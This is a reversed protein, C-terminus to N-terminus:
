GAHCAACDDLAFAKKGNHCAGCYRGKDMEAHTVPARRPSARLIRFERSHCVTCGPTRSDVHTEHNFTVQEPSDGSRMMKIPGPLRPMNQSAAFAGSGFVLAVTTTALVTQLLRWGGAWRWSRRADAGRGEAELGWGSHTLVRM